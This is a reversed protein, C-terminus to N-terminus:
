NTWGDFTMAGEPKPAEPDRREQLVLGLRRLEPNALRLAEDNSGSYSVLMAIARGTFNTLAPSLISVLRLMLVALRRMFPAIFRNLRNM